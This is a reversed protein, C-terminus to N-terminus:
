SMVYNRSWRTPTSQLHRLHQNPSQLLVPTTSPPFHSSSPNSAVPPPAMTQQLHQIHSQAQTTLQEKLLMNQQRLIEIQAQSMAEQHQVQYFSPDCGRGFGGMGSPMHPLGTNAMPNWMSQDPQGQPAAWPRYNWFPFMAASELDSFLLEFNPYMWLM